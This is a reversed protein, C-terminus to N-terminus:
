AMEVLFVRYAFPNATDKRREYFAITRANGDRIILNTGLRMVTVNYEIEAENMQLFWEIRRLLDGGDPPKGCPQCCRHWASNRNGSTPPPSISGLQGFETKLLGFPLSRAAGKSLRCQGSELLHAIGAVPTSALYAIQAELESPSCPQIEEIM